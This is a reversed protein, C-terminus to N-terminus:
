ERFLSFFSKDVLYQEPVNCLKTLHSNSEINAMVHNLRSGFDPYIAEYKRCLAVNFVEALAKVYENFILKHTKKQARIYHLDDYFNYLVRFVDAKRDKPDFGKVYDYKNHM